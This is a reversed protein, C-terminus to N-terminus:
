ALLGKETAYAILSDFDEVIHLSDTDLVVRRKVNTVERKTQDRQGTDAVLPATTSEVAASKVVSPATIKVVRRESEHLAAECTEPPTLWFLNVGGPGGSIDVKLLSVAELDRIARQVARVDNVGSDSAIKAISPHCSGRDQDARSALATYIRLATGDLRRGTKPHRAQLVGFDVLAYRHAPNLHAHHQRALKRRKAPRKKVQVREVTEVPPTPTINQPQVNTAAASAPAAKRKVCFEDCVVASM